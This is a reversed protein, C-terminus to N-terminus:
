EDNCQACNCPRDIRKPNLLPSAFRSECACALVCACACTGVVTSLAVVQIMRSNHLYPICYFALYVCGYFNAIMMSDVAHAMPGMDETQSDVQKSEDFEEDAQKDIGYVLMDLKSFQAIVAQVVESCVRDLRLTDSGGLV